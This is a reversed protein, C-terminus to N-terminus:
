SQRSDQWNGLALEGPERIPVEHMERGEQPWDDREVGDARVVADVAVVAVLWAFRDEIQFMYSLRDRAGCRRSSGQLTKGGLKPGLPPGARDQRYGVERVTHNRQPELGCQM